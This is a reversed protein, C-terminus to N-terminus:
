ARSSTPPSLPQLLSMIETCPMGPAMSPSEDQQRPPAPLRWGQTREGAPAWPASLRQSTLFRTPDKIKVEAEFAIHKVTLKQTHSAEWGHGGCGGWDAKGTSWLTPKERSSFFFFCGFLFVLGSIGRLTDWGNRNWNLPFSERFKALLERSDM